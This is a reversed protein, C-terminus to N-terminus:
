TRRAETRANKEWNHKNFILKWIYKMNSLFSNLSDM